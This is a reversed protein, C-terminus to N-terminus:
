HKAVMTLHIALVSSTTSCFLLFFYNLSINQYVQTSFMRFHQEKMIFTLTLKELEEKVFYIRHFCDSAQGWWQTTAEKAPLKWFYYDLNINKNM